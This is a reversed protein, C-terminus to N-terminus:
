KDLASRRMGLEESRILRRDVEPGYGGCDLLATLHSRQDGLDAYPDIFSVGAYERSFAYFLGRRLNDNSSDAEGSSLFNYNLRFAEVDEPKHSDEVKLFLALRNRLRDRVNKVEVGNGVVEDLFKQVVENGKGYVYDWIEDPGVRFIHTNM